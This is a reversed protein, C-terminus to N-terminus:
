KDRKSPPMVPDQDLTELLEDTRDCIALQRNLAEVYHEAKRVANANDHDVHKHINEKMTHLMSRVVNNSAREKEPKFPLGYLPGISFSHSFREFPYLASVTGDHRVYRAFMKTVCPDACKRVYDVVVPDIEVFPTGREDADRKFASVSAEGKYANQYGTGFLLAGRHVIEGHTIYGRCMRGHKLFRIVAKTCHDVLNILGAPSTEASAVMCDSIQIFEFSLDKRICPAEPCVIPGYTAYTEADSSSGFAALMAVIEDACPGKGAVSDDVMKSFGLVDVFAVFKKAYAM